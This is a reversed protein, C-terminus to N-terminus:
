LTGTPEASANLDKRVMSLRTQLHPAASFRRETDGALKALTAYLSVIGPQLPASPNLLFDNLLEDDYYSLATIAATLSLNYSYSHRTSNALAELLADLLAGAHFRSGRPTALRMATSNSEAASTSADDSSTPVATVSPAPRPPAAVRATRIRARADALYEAYETDSGYQQGPFLQLFATVAAQGALALSTRSSSGAAIHHRAVLRRRVVGNLIANRPASLLSTVLYLSARGTPEAAANIRKCVTSWLLSDPASADDDVFSGIILEILADLVRGRAIDLLDCTLLAAVSALHEDSKMLTPGVLEIFMKDQLQEVLENGIPHQSDVVDVIISFVARLADAADRALSEYGGTTDNTSTSVAGHRRAQTGRSCASDYSQVAHTVLREVLNSRSAFYADIGGDRMALATCLATSARRAVTGRASVLLPLLVNIPMFVPASSAYEHADTGFFFGCLEPRQALRQLLVLM